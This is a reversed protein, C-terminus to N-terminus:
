GMRKRLDYQDERVDTLMSLEKGKGITARARHRDLHSKAVSEDVGQIGLAKAVAVVELM